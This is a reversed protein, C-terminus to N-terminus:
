QITQFCPFYVIINQIWVFINVFYIGSGVFEFVYSCINFKKINMDSNYYYYLTYSNYPVKCFIVVGVPCSVM